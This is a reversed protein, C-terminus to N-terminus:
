ENPFYFVDNAKLNKLTENVLKGNAWATTLDKPAGSELSVGGIDKFNITEASVAALCAVAAILSNM